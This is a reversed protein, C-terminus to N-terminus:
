GRDIVISSALFYFMISITTESTQSALITQLLFLSASNNVITIM